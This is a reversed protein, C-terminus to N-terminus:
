DIDYSPLQMIVKDNYKGSAAPMISDLNVRIVESNTASDLPIYTYLIIYKGSASVAKKVPRPFDIGANLPGSIIRKQLDKEERRFFKLLPEADEETKLAYEIIDNMIKQQDNLYNLSAVLASVM